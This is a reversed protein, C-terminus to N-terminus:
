VTSRVIQWGATTNVVTTNSNSLTINTGKDSPNWTAYTAM